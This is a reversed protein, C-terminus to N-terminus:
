VGRVMKEHADEDGLLRNALNNPDYEGGIPGPSEQIETENWPSPSPCQPVQPELQFQEEGETPEQKPVEPNVTVDPDPVENEPRLTEINEIRQM